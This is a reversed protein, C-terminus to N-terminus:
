PRKIELKYSEISDPALDKIQITQDASTHYRDLETGSQFILDTSVPDAGSNYVLVEDGRCTVYLNDARGDPVCLGPINGSLRSNLLSMVTKTYVDPSIDQSPISIVRGKGLVRTSARLLSKDIKIDKIQPVSIDPNGGDAKLTIEQPYVCLDRSDTPIVYPQMRFDIRLVNNGKLLDKPVRFTWVNDNGTKGEVKAIEKGNIIISGGVPIGGKYVLTYDMNPDVTILMSANKGGWRFDGESHSWDGVLEYGPSPQGPHFTFNAPMDITVSAWNHAKRTLPAVMKIPANDFQKWVRFVKQETAILVGGNKVWKLLESYADADMTNCPGLLVYRYRDLKADRALNDDVFDFDIYDRLGDYKNLCQTGMTRNCIVDIRPYFAAVGVYPSKQILHDKEKEWITTQPELRQCSGFNALQGEYYHIHNCGAAAAGFIRAAIGKANVEGAPELGSEIGYLKAATTAQRTAMFNSPYSSAENTLRIWIGYKSCMKAQGTIDFGIMVNDTGGVCLYLPINPKIYKRAIKFWKECWKTMEGRYWECEDLVLTDDMEATPIQFEIDDFSKYITGWASNLRDITKYNQRLWDRFSKQAYPDACWYGLHSHYQGNWGLSGAPYLSEGFDGSVGFMISELQPSDQYRKIFASLVREVHKDLGPTWISRVDSRQAHEICTFPVDESSKKYWEPTAYSPNMIVIAQWKFNANKCIADLKDTETWDFQGRANPELVAWTVYSEFADVGEARAFKAAREMADVDKIPWMTNTVSGVIVVMPKYQNDASFAYSGMLCLICAVITALGRAICIKM